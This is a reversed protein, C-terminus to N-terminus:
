EYKNKEIGLILQSEVYIDDPLDAVYQIYKKDRLTANCYFTSFQDTEIENYTIILDEWFDRAKVTFNNDSVICKYKHIVFKNFLNWFFRNGSDKNNWSMQIQYIDKGKHLCRLSLFAVIYPKGRNESILYYEVINGKQESFVHYTKSNLILEGVNKYKKVIMESHEFNYSIEELKYEISNITNPSEKILKNNYYFEKFSYTIGGGDLLYKNEFVEHRDQFERNM